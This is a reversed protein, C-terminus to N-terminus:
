TAGHPLCCKSLFRTTEDIFEINDEIKLPSALGFATPKQM